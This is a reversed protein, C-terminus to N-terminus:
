AYRQGQGCCVGAAKWSHCDYWYLGGHACELLNRENGDCEIEIDDVTQTDTHITYGTMCNMINNSYILVVHVSLIGIPVFGFALQSCIVRADAEHWHDDCM